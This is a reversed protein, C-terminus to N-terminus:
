ASNERMFGWPAWRSGAKQPRSYGLRCDDKAGRPGVTWRSACPAHAGDGEGSAHPDLRCTIREKVKLIFPGGRDVRPQTAVATKTKDQMQSKLLTTYNECKGLNLLKLKQEQQVAVDCSCGPSEQFPLAKSNQFVAESSFSSQLGNEPDRANRIRPGAEEDTM